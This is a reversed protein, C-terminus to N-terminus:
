AACRKSQRRIWEFCRGVGNNSTQDSCTFPASAGRRDGVGMLNGASLAQRGSMETRLRSHVPFITMDSASVTVQRDDLARVAKMDFM